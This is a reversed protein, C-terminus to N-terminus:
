TRKISHLKFTLINWFWVNRKLFPDLKEREIVSKPATYGEEDEWEFTESTKWLISWRGSEDDKM